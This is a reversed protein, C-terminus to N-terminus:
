SRLSSYIGETRRSATTNVDHRRRIPWGSEFSGVGRVEELAVKGCWM